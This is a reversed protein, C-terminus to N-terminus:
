PRAELVRRVNDATLWSVRQNSEQTVGGIHPTLILNPSDAFTSGATMPETEFVDLAAGGIRGERLAQALAADDVVGGRAANILVATPKMTNLRAADVIHRTQCTLPVHLSVVDAQEFLHHLAVPTVGAEAWIEADAPILPDYAQLRMGLARARSAVERAIGGFGVLGLARGYVEGGMLESRPWEGDLMRRRANFAGRVLMLATVIVYEAVAINNAGTAPMVVIGRAECEGMDINDLGVGLRGVVRLRPATELLAARVQTRNRVILGRADGLRAALAEPQDALAPDYLVDLSRRLDDVAQEDMFESIVIDSMFPEHKRTSHRVRAATTM